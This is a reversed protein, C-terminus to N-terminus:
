TLRVAARLKASRSRPNKKVEEPSPVLVHKNITQWRHEMVAQLDSSNPQSAYNKYKLDNLILDNRGCLHSKVIRHVSLM